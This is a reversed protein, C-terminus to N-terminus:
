PLLPFSHPPSDAGTVALSGALSGLALFGAGSSADLGPKFAALHGHLTAKGLSPKARGKLLSESEKMELVEIPKGLIRNYFGLQQIPGTEEPVFLVGDFKKGISLKLMRQRDTDM